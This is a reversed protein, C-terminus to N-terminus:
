QSTHDPPESQGLLVMKLIGRFAGDDVEFDFAYYKADGVQRCITQRMDFRIGYQNRVPRHFTISFERAWVDRRSTLENDVHAYIVSLQGVAVLSLVSSLHFSQTESASYKPVDFCGVIGARLLHAERLELREDRYGDVLYHGLFPQIESRELPRTSVPPTLVTM